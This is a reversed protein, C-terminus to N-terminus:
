YNSQHKISRIHLIIGAVILLLGSLLMANSSTLSPIRTAVLVLTGIIILIIGLYQGIKKM